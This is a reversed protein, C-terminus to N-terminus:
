KALKKITGFCADAWYVYTDDVRIVGAYENAAFVTPSGGTIPMKWINFQDSYYLNVGDGVLGLPQTLGSALQTAVGGAPLSWISAAGPTDGNTLYVWYVGSTDAFLALNNYLNGAVETWLTSWSGGSKPISTLTVNEGSAGVSLQGYWLAYINATDVGLGVPNDDFAPYPSAIIVPAGGGLPAHYVSPDGLNYWYLSSSDTAFAFPFSTEEASEGWFISPTASGSAPLPISMVQSFNESPMSESSFGTSWYLGSSTAALSFASDQGMALTAPSGAGTKAITLIKGPANLNVDAAWYVSNTDIALAGLQTQGSVLVTGASGQTSPCYAPTGSDATGSDGPLVGTDSGGADRGECPGCDIPCSACTEGDTCERDGCTAGSDQGSTGSGSSSSTTGSDHHGSVGSDRSGGPTSSGTGSGGTGADSEDGLTEGEDFCGLTPASAALAVGAIMPLWTLHRFRRTRSCNM